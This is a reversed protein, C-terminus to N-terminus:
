LINRPASLLQTDHTKILLTRLLFFLCSFCAKQLFHCIDRNSSCLNQTAMLPRPFSTVPADPLLLNQLIRHARRLLGSKLTICRLVSVNLKCKLSIMKIYKLPPPYFPLLFSSLSWNSTRLLLSASIMYLCM